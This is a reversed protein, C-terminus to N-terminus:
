SKGTNVKFRPQVDKIWDWIAQEGLTKSAAYVDFAEKPTVSCTRGQIREIAIENWTKTTIRAPQTEDHELFSSFVATESSSTYVFRQVTPEQSATTLINRNMDIVSDIMDQGGDYITAVHVVGAVGTLIM